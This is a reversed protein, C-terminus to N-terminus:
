TKLRMEVARRSSAAKMKDLDWLETFRARSEDPTSPPVAGSVVAESLRRQLEEKEIRLQELQRVYRARLQQVEEDHGAVSAGAFSEANLANAQLHSRFLGAFLAGALAGAAVLGVYVAAKMPM